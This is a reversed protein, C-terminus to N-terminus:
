APQAQTALYDMTKELKLNERVDDLKGNKTLTARLAEPTSNQRAAIAALRAQVEEDTVDIGEKEAIRHLLYDMKVREVAAGNANDFIKQKQEAIMQESIGQRVNRRVLDYIIQETEREVVSAPLEMTTAALLAQAIKDRTEREAATRAAEALDDRIRKRLDGADAAGVHKFFEENMEPLIRGRIAKVTVRYDVTKGAMEKVSFDADFTSKVERVDGVAAGKLAEAFGPMIGAPGISVWFGSAKGLGKAAPVVEDVSKGDIQGEFDVQVLDTDGAPRGTVDEYKAMRARISEVLEDVQTEEVAKPEVRAKLGQYAPLDFEPPIDLVASFALPADTKVTPEDLGVIAVPNLGEKKLAEHYARPVLQDRLEELINKEYRRLVMDRPARGPRFGPIRAHRAIGTAVQEYAQRVDEVPVEISLKKRCPGVVEVSTKIDM